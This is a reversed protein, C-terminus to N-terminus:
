LATRLKPVLMVVILDAITNLGVFLVAFIMAITQIVPIDRAAVASILQTGLGPYNFVAETVVIGGLMFYLCLAFAQVSPAMANRLAVRWVVRREPFGQLRAMQVYDSSMADLVGARVLRATWAVCALLLTLVPLVLVAPDALATSGPAVLAVPPLLGLTSFFIAILFTGTVFEPLAITVLTGIMVVGDTFGGPRVAAVTGLILSLPVLLVFAIFALILTNALAGNGFILSSVSGSTGTAFSAASTGWDGTVFDGLWDVYRHVPSQDLGLQQRLQEAIAPQAERGLVNAVVDGPLLETTAFILISALWLSLLALASRRLFFRLVPHSALFRRHAPLGAASGMPLSVAAGANMHGEESTM